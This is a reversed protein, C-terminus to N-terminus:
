AESGGNRWFYDSNENDSSYDIKVQPVNLPIRESSSFLFNIHLNIPNWRSM